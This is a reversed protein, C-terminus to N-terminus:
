GQAFSNRHTEPLSLRPNLQARFLVRHYSIQDQFSVTPPALIASGELIQLNMM